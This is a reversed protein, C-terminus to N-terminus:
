GYKDYGAIEHKLAGWIRELPYEKLWFPMGMGHDIILKKAIEWTPKQSLLVREKAFVDTM